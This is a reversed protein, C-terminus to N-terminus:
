SEQARELVQGRRGTETAADRKRSTTHLLLGVWTGGTQGPTGGLSGAAALFYAQDRQASSESGRSRQM